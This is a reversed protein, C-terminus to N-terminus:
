RMSAALFSLNDPVVHILGGRPNDIDAILAFAISLVLPLLALILRHPRLSPAAYGVMANCLMAILLMLAWAAGPIRNDWAAQTDNRSNVVDNMSAVVGALIATPQAAAAARVESWLQQQIGLAQVRIERVRRPDLETYFSIRTELYTKLLARTRAAADPPLLEARLYATDIADAESEETSNRHDYRNIAMSFSFGVLLGLLTLSASLIVKYDTRAEETRPSRGAINAGLWACLTLAVLSLAFVVM